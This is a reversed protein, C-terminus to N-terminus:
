NQLLHEQTTGKDSKVTMKNDIETKSDCSTPISFGFKFGGPAEQKVDTGIVEDGNVNVSAMM